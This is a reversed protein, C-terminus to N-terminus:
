PNVLIVEVGREELETRARKTLRGTLLVVDGNGASAFESLFAGSDSYWGALDVGFPMIRRGNVDVALPMSLFEEIKAISDVNLQYWALSEANRRYFDFQQRSETAVALEFFSTLDEAEELQALSEILITQQAPTAFELSLFQSALDKAIGFDDILTKRNRIFLDSPSALYADSIRTREAEELVTFLHKGPIVLGIAFDPLAELAAVRDLEEQLAENDSYPDLDYKAAIERKRDTAGLWGKVLGEGGYAGERREERTLSGARSLIAGVGRPIDLM